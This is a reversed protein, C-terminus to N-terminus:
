EGAEQEQEQRTAEIALAAAVIGKLWQHSSTLHEYHEKVAAREKRVSAQGSAVSELWPLDRGEGMSLLTTIIIHEMPNDGLLQEYAKLQALRVKDKPMLTNAKELLDALRAAEIQAPTLEVTTETASENQTSM